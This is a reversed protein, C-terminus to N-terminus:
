EKAKMATFPLEYGQVIIKANFVEETFEGTIDMDTDFAYFNASLINNEIKLDRLETSGMDSNITGTVENEGQNLIIWGNFTGQPTDMVYDWRGIYSPTKVKTTACYALILTLFIYLTLKFFKSTKM